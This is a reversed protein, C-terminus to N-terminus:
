QQTMIMLVFDKIVQKEGTTTLNNLQLKVVHEWFLVINTALM